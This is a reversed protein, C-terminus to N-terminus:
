KLTMSTSEPLHRFVTSPRDPDADKEALRKFNEVKLGEGALKGEINILPSGNIQTPWVTLNRIVINALVGDSAPLDKEEVGGSAGGHAVWKRADDGNIAHYRCGVECQEITIDRISHASRLIRTFCHCDEASVHRIVM